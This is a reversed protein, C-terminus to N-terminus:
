FAPGFTLAFRWGSNLRAFPRAAAAEVVFGRANVRLGVGASSLWSARTQDVAAARWLGVNDVFACAEMLM